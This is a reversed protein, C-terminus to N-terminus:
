PPSDLRLALWVADGFEAEDLIKIMEPVFRYFRYAFATEGPKLTDKWAAHAPFRLGYLREAAESHMGTAPECRGFLQLGLGPSTWSQTSAFVAVAMSPNASVNRCHTSSPHSLFYLDLDESYAFYATNIHPQRSGTVTAWACLPSEALARAISRWIRDASFTEM